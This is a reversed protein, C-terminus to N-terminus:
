LTILVSNTVLSKATLDFKSNYLLQHQGTKLLLLLYKQVNKEHIMRKTYKNSDGQGPSELLYMFRLNEQCIVHSDCHFICLGIM